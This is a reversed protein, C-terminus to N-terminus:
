AVPLRPTHRHHAFGVATQDLHVGFFTLTAPKAHLRTWGFHQVQRFPQIVVPVMRRYVRAQSAGPAADTEENTGFRAADPHEAEIGHGGGLLIAHLFLQGFAIFGDHLGGYQRPPPGKEPDGAGGALSIASAADSERRRAPPTNTCASLSTAAMLISYPPAAAPTRQMVAELPGPMLRICSPM